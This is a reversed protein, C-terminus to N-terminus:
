RLEIEITQGNRLAQGATLSQQKVSGHGKVKVKLGANELLFLADQLGMGRVEPVVGIQVEREGFEVYDHKTSTTIWSAQTSTEMPINLARFTESLDGHHGNKSIPMLSEALMEDQIPTPSYLQTAHLHDALRKFVPAAVTSGYYSGGRPDHVVVICSYKPAEAPFYGVFSARFRGYNYSGKEHLWATGTKGAVNYPAQKFAHEATGHEECVGDLMKKCKALTSSSCIRDKLIVPEIVDVTRGNKRFESAFLPKVMQGNNAVANYFALTQIPSQAVEYGMSMWLHSIGSWRGDGVKDYVIPKKEGKISIGLPQSVGFSELYNLFDQKSNQFCRKTIEAMGINSSWEFVEELTGEGHGGKDWNSDRIQSGFFKRKGKGMDVKTDLDVKGSELAAMIAPLKFTSGPEDTFGIAYNYVENYDLTGMESDPDAKLNAIARIYGTGVEMLVVCGWKAKHRKLQEELANEAIDQLHVDITTVLDVGDTPQTIFNNSIPKWINGAIKEQLQSGEKGALQAHYARELGVREGERDIGITRSALKGFPKKRVNKKDIVFGSKYRSWRVIPFKKVRQLQTYDIKTKIRAYRQEQALAQMFMDKYEVKSKDQFENAFHWALSDLKDHFLDIRNQLGDAQSDWYINYEPVSTAFLSGDGALIQGRTPTITRIQENFRAGTQAWKNGEGLQIFFIKIIIALSM